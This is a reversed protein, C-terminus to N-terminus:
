REGSAGNPSRNFLLREALVGAQFRGTAGLEDLISAIHRRCTRVSLGLRKAIVEDKEGATLHQLIGKRLQVRLMDRSAADDVYFPAAAGWLREFAFRFSTVVAPHRVLTIGEQRNDPSSLFVASGNVLVMRFPVCTVTRVEGGNGCLFEVHRRTDRNVQASHDLLVRSRVTHSLDALTAGFEELWRVEGEEHGSNVVWIEDDDDLRVQEALLRSVSLEGHLVDIVENPSRKHLADLYGPVLSLLEDQTSMLKSQAQRLKAEEESLLDVLACKPGVADWQRNPELSRRFLRTAHLTRLAANLRGEDFGMSGTMEDATWGPNEVAYKYVAVADPTLRRSSDAYDSPLQQAYL